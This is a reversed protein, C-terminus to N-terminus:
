GRHRGKKKTHRAKKKKKAKACGTVTIKTSQKIVAGNQGTITTPMTLNQGCLNGRKKAPVVAALGSHPGEPLKMEFTNIPADPVSAFTSSTVGHKIDISGTLQLTIGEGQLIVVVDPFAAGGHSVLYVPGSVPNSLVPTTATATGINSGAPCSAPNAAFVAALCAQQITTLRAPLQKPLSVAVQHINAQGRGSTVKVDLSAGSKKSTAAQTAVKFSPKFTLERCGRVQFRSSLGSTAGETSAATGTIEMPTCSTPNYIFNPRDIVADISRLDTPVGKVIQPLPDTVVKVQATHSDVEIRARTVITGLNFPGAIVPTMISLGFPAGGYPGTLYVAAEPEGPQPIVLPTAGPGSTAVAHGIRSASGCTGQAAQPEGCLPVQSILAGLGAPSTFRFSEVRQSGDGRQLLTTFGTFAGAETSTSGAAFSPAFPLPTPPCTGGGPGETLTLGVNAIFDSVFPSSWPTFDAGATYTGCQPPTVLAAKAGGDFVLKFDSFPLQPTGDFKTTLQGTQEDLHVVGVLKINVGDASAALLLKIEPPNSQLLYVNGEFQKESASEILPSKITVSGIRSGPPCSPADNNEEGRSQEEETTLAAETPGCSQLSAAQGPNVAVGPPLTVTADQLDSTRRGTAEDLRGVEEELDGLAPTVNVTLGTVSDSRNVGLQSSIAPEFGLSGCGTLSTPNGQTDHMRFSAEAWIDPHQWSNAKIATTGPVGCQTGLTLYPITVPSLFTLCGNAERGAGIQIEELTCGHYGESGQRRWPDHSHAQPVDWLTLIVGLPDRQPSHSVTADIGYDGGTRVGADIVTRIGALDFGLEAPLGPPPALNYVGLGFTELEGTETSLTGVQSAAPCHQDAFAEQSCRATANPNVVLGPPLRTIVERAEGGAPALLKNGGETAVATNLDFAFTAEYPHSGAQTDLTGDANSFWGDWDAFGFDPARPTVVISTRVSAPSSAGGGEVTAQNNLGAAEGGSDVVIAIPSYTPTFFEPAPTGGGGPLEAFVNTCKVVSAGAVPEGPGNGTCEWQQNDVIPPQEEVAPFRVGGAEQATVGPPLVDTITISGHSAGAGINLVKLILSGRTHPRFYTPVSRATIEWGPAVGAAIASSASLGSAAALAVATLLARRNM